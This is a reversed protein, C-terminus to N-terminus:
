VSKSRSELAANYHPNSIPDLLLPLSTTLYPRSPSLNALLDLELEELAETVERPRGRKSGAELGM